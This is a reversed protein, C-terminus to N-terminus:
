CPASVGLCTRANVWLTVAFGICSNCSHRTPVATYHRLQRVGTRCLSTRRVAVKNTFMPPSLKLHQLMDCLMRVTRGAMDWTTVPGKCRGCQRQNYIYRCANLCLLLCILGPWQVLWQVSNPLLTSRMAPTSVHWILVAASHLAVSHCEHLVWCWQWRQCACGSCHLGHQQGLGASM